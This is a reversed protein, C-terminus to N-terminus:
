RFRASLTWFYRLRIVEVDDCFESVSDKLQQANPYNKIIEHVARNKLFRLEYRNGRADRRSASINIGHVYTQDIMLLRAAPELRSSLHALFEQRKQKKVHSWWLHAMGVDFSYAFKPLAYADARILTVNSGLYRRAANALMGSNIDTAVITQAVSAAAVTWYGSGAAIELIRRAYVHKVLWSRLQELEQQYELVEYLCDYESARARYYAQLIQDAM